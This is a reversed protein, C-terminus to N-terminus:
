GRRAKQTQHEKRLQKHLDFREKTLPRTRKAVIADKNEVVGGLGGEIWRRVIESSFGLSGPRSLQRPKLIITGMQTNLRRQVSKSMVPNAKLIEASFGEKHLMKHSEEYRKPIKKGCKSCKKM